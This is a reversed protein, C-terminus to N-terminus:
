CVEHKLGHVEEKSERREGLNKLVNTRQLASGGVAQIKLREKPQSNSVHGINEDKPGSRRSSVFGGDWRMGVCFPLPLHHSSLSTSGVLTTEPYFCDLGIRARCGVRGALTRLALSGIFSSCVGKVNEQTQM